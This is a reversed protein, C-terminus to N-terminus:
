TARPPWPARPWPVSLALVASLTLPILASGRFRM